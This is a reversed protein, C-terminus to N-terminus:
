LFGVNILIGIVLIVRKIRLGVESQAGNSVVHGQDLLLHFEACIFGLM